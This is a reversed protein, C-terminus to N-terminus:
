GRARSAAVPKTGSSAWVAGGIWCKPALDPCALPKLSALPDRVPLATPNIAPPVRRTWPRQYQPAETVLPGGPIWARHLAAHQGPLEPLEAKAVNPAASHAPDDM